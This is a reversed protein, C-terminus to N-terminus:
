MKARPPHVTCPASMRRRRDPTRSGDSWKGTVARSRRFSPIYCRPALGASFPPRDGGESAASRSRRTWTAADMEALSQAVENIRDHEVSLLVVASVM